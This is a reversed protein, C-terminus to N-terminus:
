SLGIWWLIWSVETKEHLTLEVKKSEIHGDDLFKFSIYVTMYIKKVGEDIKIWTKNKEDHIQFSKTSYCSSKENIKYDISEVRQFDIEKNNQKFYKNGMLIEVSDFKVEIKDSIDLSSQELKLYIFFLFNEVKFHGGARVNSYLFFNNYIPEYKNDQEFTRKRYYCSTILLSCLLFLLIRKM